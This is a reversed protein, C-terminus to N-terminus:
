QQRRARDMWDLGFSSVFKENFNFNLGEVEGLKLFEQLSIQQDLNTDALRFIANVQAHIQDLEAQSKKHSNGVTMASLVEQMEAKSISKSGDLDFVNFYARLQADRSGFFVLNLREVLELFDVLGNGDVDRCSSCRVLSGAFTLGSLVCPSRANHRHRHQHRGEGSDHAHSHSSNM